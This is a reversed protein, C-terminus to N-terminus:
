VNRRQSTEIALSTPRSQDLAPLSSSTSARERLAPRPRPEEGQLAAIGQRWATDLDADAPFRGNLELIVMGHAFAWVARARDPDGTASLLPAAARAEVGAPLRERPLPQGTMLRYLHPHNLAFSRYAAALAALPEAAGAVAAQFAAAQEEFGTAIIAAELAAKDPLHKYLSSARIGLREALRRMTLAQAGEEELLERAAAVIQRARPTLPEAV